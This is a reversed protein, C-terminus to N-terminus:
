GLRRYINLYEGAMRTASFHAVAERYSERGFRAAEEPNKLYSLVGEALSEASGPPVVRGLRGHRLIAPIDGVGSAVIPKQAAMAELLALPHSEVLSPLVFIDMRSLLAPVDSRDGLFLVRDAIGNREAQRQLEERLPGDGVLAFFCRGHAALIRPAADLLCGHGKQPVLRGVTGIVTDAPDHPLPSPAAGSGNGHFKEVDIGNEVRHVKEPDFGSDLLAQEVMRSVPAVADFRKLVFRDAWAYLSMATNTNIWNHVTAVRRTRHELGSLFAYMDAKYGHSHVIDVAHTRAHSAIARIAPFDLRGGCDFVQADLGFEAAKEALDFEPFRRDRIVGVTVSPGAKRLASALAMVLNEAGHFGRSSILQLINL